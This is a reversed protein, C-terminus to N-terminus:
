NTQPSLMAAKKSTKVGSQLFYPWQGKQAIHLSVWDPLNESIRRFFNEYDFGPQEEGEVIHRSGSIIGEKDYEKIIKVFGITEQLHNKYQYIDNAKSKIMEGEWQLANNTPIPGIVQCSWNKCRPGDVRIWRPRLKRGFAYHDDYEEIKTRYAPSLAQIIAKEVLDGMKLQADKEDKAYTIPMAVVLYNANDSSIREKNSAGGLLMGAAAIGVDVGHPLTGPIPRSAAALGLKTARAGFSKGEEFKNATTSAPKIRADPNFPNQAYPKFTGCGSVLCAFLLIALANTRTKTM